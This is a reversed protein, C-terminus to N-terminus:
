SNIKLATKIIIFNLVQKEDYIVTDTLGRKPMYVKINGGVLQLTDMDGTLILVEIDKGKLEKAITGIIDDAEFGPKEYVPIGFAELDEKVLSFQSVLDPSIEPRTAKYEKYEEHRFTPEPLDFAAAIYDPKFENITKLLISTFGYVANISEGSKTTMPPLAHFARHILAHSDILIFKKM